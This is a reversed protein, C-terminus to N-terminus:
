GRLIDIHKYKHWVDIEIEIEIQRVVCRVERGGGITIHNCTHIKAHVPIFKSLIDSSESLVEPPTCM